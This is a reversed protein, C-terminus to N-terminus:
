AGAVHVGISMIALQHDPHTGAHGTVAPTVLGLLAVILPVRAQVLSRDRLRAVACGLLAATCLATLLLGRGGALQTVFSGIEGAGLTGLPRGFAYATRFMVALLVLVVWAGAA